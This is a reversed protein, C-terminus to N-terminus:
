TRRRSRLVSKVDEISEGPRLLEGKELNYLVTDTDLPGGNKIWSEVIARLKDPEMEGGFYDTNPEVALEAAENIWFAAYGLAKAVGGAVNLAMGALASHEGAHRFRIAMAADAQNKPQELLRAGMAAMRREDAEKEGSLGDFGSDVQLIGARAQPNTAVLAFESGLPVRDKSDGDDEEDDTQPFEFGAFWPTPLGTVHLGNKHDADLRYHDITLDALGLLPPEDVDPELDYPNIFVFPIEELRKGGRDPATYLDPNPADYDGNEDPEWIDVAYFGTDDIHPVRYRTLTIRAFQDDPKEPDPRSITEELIIWKLRKVGDVVEFEWDRIQGQLWGTLYPRKLEENYDALIGYRGSVLIRQMVFAEFQELSM